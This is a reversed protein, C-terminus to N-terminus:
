RNKILWYDKGDDTGYGVVLVAHNIASSCRPDDYVGSSYFKLTDLTGHIGVAIPGVEAIAVKLADETRPLQVHGTCTAGTNARKYNCM